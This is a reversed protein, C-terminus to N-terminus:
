GVRELADATEWDPDLRYAASALSLARARGTFEMAMPGFSAHSVRYGLLALRRLVPAFEAPDRASLSVISCGLPARHALDGLLSKYPISAYSSVAALLDAIAAIQRPAASPSLFVSRQPRDTYANVALGVAVGDGIWSRALSIAAVCLGEVLDDDWTLMWSPGPLSQIDLALLVARERAADFRRSVPRQLRATAKWHIRRPHDGPQYPRVGAFLTPEEILGTVAHTAGASPSREMASRVGVIRPVVHYVTEISREETRSARGFLDGVRLEATTFRYAGRTAGLISVRRTVREFWGVSWTARLVAFGRHPSPPLKRGDIDAGDTVVDDIQLWPLPLAKANRVVLDLDLTEGWRVRPASLHREYTLGRLGYRSWLSQVILVLGSLVGILILGGAGAVAGAIILVIAGIAALGM